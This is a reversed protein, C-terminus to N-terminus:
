IATRRALYPMLRGPLSNQDNALDLVISGNQLPACTLGIQLQQLACPRQFRVCPQDVARVGIDFRAMAFPMHAVFIYMAMGILYIPSARDDTEDLCDIADM